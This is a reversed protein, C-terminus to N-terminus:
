EQEQLFPFMSQFVKCQRCMNMKEHWSEQRGGQCITGNVFWCLHGAQFEWAPCNRRTEIPCKQIVWCPKNRKSHFYSRKTALLFLLQQEIHSPINRWGQEYSQIAKYSMGLLQGMQRQTKGWSDRIQSFEKKDMCVGGENKGGRSWLTASHEPDRLCRAM